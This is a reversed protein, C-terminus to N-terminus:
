LIGFNGMSVCYVFLEMGIINKIVPVNLEMGSKGVLVDLGNVFGMRLSPVTLAYVNTIVTSFNGVQVHLKESAIPEMGFLLNHANVNMSLYTGNNGM